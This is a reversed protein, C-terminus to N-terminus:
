WNQSLVRTNLHKHTNFSVCVCVCYCKTVEWGSPAVEQRGDWFCLDWESTVDSVDQVDQVM